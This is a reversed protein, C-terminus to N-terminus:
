KKKKREEYLIIKARKDIDERNFPSFVGDACLIDSPRCNNEALIAADLLIERSTIKKIDTVDQETAFTFMDILFDSPFFYKVRMELMAYQKELDEKDKSTLTKDMIFKIKFDEMKEKLDEVDSYKLMMNEVEEYTPSIMAIKLVNHQLEAYEAMQTIGSKQGDEFNSSDLNILSFQGCSKIEVISLPRCIFPLEAGNFRMIVAPYTVAEMRDLTSYTKTTM